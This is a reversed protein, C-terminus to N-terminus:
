RGLIMGPSSESVSGLMAIPVRGLDLPTEMIYIASFVAETEPVIDEIAMHVPDIPPAGKSVTAGISVPEFKVLETRYEVPNGHTSGVEETLYPAKAPM